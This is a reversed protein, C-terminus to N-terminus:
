FSTYARFIFYGGLLIIIHVTQVIRTNNNNNINPSAKQVMEYKFDQM